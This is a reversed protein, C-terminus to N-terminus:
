RTARVLPFPTEEQTIYLRDQDRADPVDLGDTWESQAWYEPDDISADDALANAPCYILAAGSESPFVDVTTEWCEGREPDFVYDADTLGRPDEAGPKPSFVYEAEGDAGDYEVLPLQIEVCSDADDEPSTPCWYGNIDAFASEDRPGEITTSEVTLVEQPAEASGSCASVSGSFAVVGVMLAVWRQAGAMGHAV